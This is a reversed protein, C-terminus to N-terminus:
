RPLISGLARREDYWRSGLVEESVSSSMGRFHHSHMTMPRISWDGAVVEVDEEVAVVEEEVVVDEEIAVDVVIVVVVVVIVVVGDAVEEKGADMTVVTVETADVEMVADEVMGVDEAIVVGTM